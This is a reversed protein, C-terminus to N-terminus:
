SKVNEYVQEVGAISCSADPTGVTNDTCFTELLNTTNVDYAFVWAARSVAAGTAESPRWVLVPNGEFVPSRLRNTTGVQALARELYKFSDLNRRSTVVKTMDRCAGKSAPCIYNKAFSGARQRLEAWPGWTVGLTRVVPGKSGGAYDCNRTTGVVERLLIFAHPERLVAKAQRLTLLDECAPIDSRQERGATAATAVTALVALTLTVSTL